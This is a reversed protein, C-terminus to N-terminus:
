SNWCALLHLCAVLEPDASGQKVMIAMMGWKRVRGGKDGGVFLKSGVKSGSGSIFAPGGKFETSGIWQICLICFSRYDRRLHSHLFSM